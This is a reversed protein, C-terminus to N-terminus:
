LTPARASQAGGTKVPGGGEGAMPESSASTTTTEPSPAAEAPTGQGEPSSTPPAKEGGGGGGGGGEAALRLKISVDLQMQVGVPLEACNFEFADRVIQANESADYKIIQRIKNNIAENYDSPSMKGPGGVRDIAEQTIAALEKLEAFTRSFLLEQNTKLSM